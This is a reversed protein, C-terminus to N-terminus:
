STVNAGSEGASPLSFGLRGEVPIEVVLTLLELRLQPLLFRALYRILQPGREAHGSISILYPHATM